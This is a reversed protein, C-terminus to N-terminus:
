SLAVYEAKMISTHTLYFVFIDSKLSCDHEFMTKFSIGFTPVHWMGLNLKRLISKQLKFRILKFHLYKFFSIYINM